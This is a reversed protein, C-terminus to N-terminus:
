RHNRRRRTGRNWERDTQRDKEEEREGDKESSNISKGEKVKAHMDDDDGVPGNM